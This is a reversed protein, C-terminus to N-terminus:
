LSGLRDTTWFIMVLSHGDWTDDPSINCPQEWDMHWGSKIVVSHGIWTGTLGNGVILCLRLIYTFNTLCTIYLWMNNVITNGKM